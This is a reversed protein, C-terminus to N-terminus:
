DSVAYAVAAPLASPWVPGPKSNTSSTVAEAVEVDLRSERPVAFMPKVFVLLAKLMGSHLM